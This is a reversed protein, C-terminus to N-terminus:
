GISYCLVVLLDVDFLSLLEEIIAVTVMCLLFGNIIWNGSSLFFFSGLRCDYFLHEVLILLWFLLGRGLICRRVIL